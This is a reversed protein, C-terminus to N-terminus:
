QTYTHINSNYYSFADKSYDNSVTNRNRNANNTVTHHLQKGWICNQLFYQVTITLKEDRTNKNNFIPFFLSETIDSSTNPFMTHFFITFNNLIKTLFIFCCFIVHARGYGGMVLCQFNASM